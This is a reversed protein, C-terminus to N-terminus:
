RAPSAILSLVHADIYREGLKLRNRAIGEEHAGAKRAAGLSASNGVGVVIEVRGLSLERLGYHALTQIAQTAVGRRHVSARVWYGLNCWQHLRNFQNLGCAGVFVGTAADFIGFEHSSRQEWQERCYGIWEQAEALGYGAHAWPMWIGLGPASERVAEVFEPADDPHLPRFLFQDSRLM